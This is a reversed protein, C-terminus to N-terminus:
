MEFALGLNWTRDGVRMAHVQGLGHFATVTYEGFLYTHHVGLDTEFGKASQRDLADLLFMGGLAYIYGNSRGAGADGLGNSASWLGTGLGLKVYPVLPVWTERALVDVRMVGVVSLAWLSLSTSEDSQRSPQGKFQAVGTARTYGVIGGVGVSGFHPVHLPQWDVEAGFMYRTTPNSTGDKNTDFVDAYPHAGGFESDVDPHYRGFRIEVAVVSNPDAVYREAASTPPSFLTLIVAFAAAAFAGRIPFTRTM